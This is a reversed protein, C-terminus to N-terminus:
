APRNKKLQEEIATAIEASVEYTATAYCEWEGCFYGSRRTESNWYRTIETFPLRSPNGRAKSVYFVVMDEASISRYRAVSAKLFAELAKRPLKHAPVQFSALIKDKQAVEIDWPPLKRTTM